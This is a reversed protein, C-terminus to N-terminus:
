LHDGVINYVQNPSAKELKIWGNRPYTLGDDNTLWEGPYEAKYYAQGDKEGLKGPQFVYIEYNGLLWGGSEGDPGKRISIQPSDTLPLSDFFYRGYSTIMGREFDDYSDWALPIDIDPRINTRSPADMRLTVKVPDDTGSKNRNGTGINACMATDNPGFSLEDGPELIQDLCPNFYKINSTKGSLDLEVDIAQLDWLPEDDCGNKSMSLQFYAYEGTMGPPPSLRYTDTNGAENPDGSSNLMLSQVCDRLGADKCFRISIDCDTGADDYEAVSEIVANHGHKWGCKHVEKCVPKKSCVPDDSRCLRIKCSYEDSCIWETSPFTRIRESYGAVISHKGTKLTVRINQVPAHMQVDGIVTQMTSLADTSLTSAPAKVSHVIVITAMVGIASIIRLYKM